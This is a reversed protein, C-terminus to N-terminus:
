DSRRRLLWALAALPAAIFMWTAIEGAVFRWSHSPTSYIHSYVFWGTWATLLAMAFWFLVREVM